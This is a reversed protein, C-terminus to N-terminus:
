NKDSTEPAIWFSEAEKQGEPPLTRVRLWHTLGVICPLAASYALLAPPEGFLWSLLPTPIFLTAGLYISNRTLLLSTIALVLSISMERPLLVLLVGTATAVGRGGRFHLFVPWNHGAVAAGGALFTVVIDRSLAQTVVVALAGKGIDSALAGIGARLGVHRFVNFAGVNHDGVARIDVGNLRGILYACPISGLLYAAVVSLAVTM